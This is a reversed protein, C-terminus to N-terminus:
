LAKNTKKTIKKPKNIIIDQEQKSVHDIEIEKDKVVSKLEQIEKCVNLLGPNKIKSNGCLKFAEKGLEQFKEDMNHNLSMIKIKLKAIKYAVVSEEKGKHALEAVKGTIKEFNKKADEWIEYKKNMKKEKM